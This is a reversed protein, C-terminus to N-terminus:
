RNGSQWDALDQVQDMDQKMQEELLEQDDMMEGKDHSIKYRKFLGKWLNAQM